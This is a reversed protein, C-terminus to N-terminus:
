LVLNPLRAEPDGMVFRKYTLESGFNVLLGTGGGACKLYNLIQAEHRKAHALPM